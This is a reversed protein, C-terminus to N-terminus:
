KGVKKSGEAKKSTKKKEEAEKPKAAEIALVPLQTPASLMKKQREEKQIVREIRQQLVLKVEAIMQQEFMSLPVM